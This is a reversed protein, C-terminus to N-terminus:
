WWGKQKKGGGKWAQEGKVVPAGKRKVGLGPPEEEYAEAEQEYSEEYSEEVAAAPKVPSKTKGVKGKGADKDKGKAGAKGGAKPNAPAGKPPTPAVAIPATPREWAPTKSAKHWYYYSEHEDSWIADWGPPLPAEEEGRLVPVSGGTEQAADQGWSEEEAYAQEEEAEAEQEPQEEEAPEPPAEAEAKKKKELLATRELEAKLSGISGGLAKQVEAFPDNNVGAKGTTGVDLAVLGNEDAEITFDVALGADMKIGQQLHRWNTYIGANYRMLASKLDEPLNDKPEIWGYVGHCWKTVKGKFRRKTKTLSSGISSFVKPAEPEAAAAKPPQIAAKAKPPMTQGKAKPMIAKAKPASAKPAAKPTSKALANGGDWSGEDEPAEEQAWEEGEAGEEAAEEAAEEGAMEEGGEAPEDETQLTVDAAGIGREDKYLFFSVEDGEAKPSATRSDNVHFYIRPNTATNLFKFQMNEIKQQPVVWGWSGQWQSIYGKVREDTYVKKEVPAAPKGDGKGTNKGGLGGKGM